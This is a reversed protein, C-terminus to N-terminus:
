IDKQLKIKLSTLKKQLYNSIMNQKTDWSTLTIIPTYTAQLMLRFLNKSNIYGGKHYVRSTDIYLPQGINGPISNIKNEDKLYEIVQSDDTRFKNWISINPNKIKKKDLRFKKDNSVHENSIFYFKGNNIDIKTLPIFVKMQDSLTDSDRHWMKSGENVKTNENYFNFLIGINQLKCRTGLLLSVKDILENTSFFSYLENKKSEKLNNFINYNFADKNKLILNDRHDNLNINKQIYNSLKEFYEQHDKAFNEILFGKRKFDNNNQINNKLPFFLNNPLNILDNYIKYFSM